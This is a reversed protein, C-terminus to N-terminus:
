VADLYPKLLAPVIVKLGLVEETGEFISLVRADVFYRSVPFEEAYGMGGHLQQAERTIWEAQRCAFFKVMSAEVQGGGQDMLRAASYSSQRCASITCAMRALKELTLPYEALAKGFVVRSTAYDRAAEYAAQMVGLARGATQLRGAGFAEMQLYFGRGRGQAEGILNEAPV